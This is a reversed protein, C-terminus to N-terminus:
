GPTSCIFALVLRCAHAALHRDIKEVDAAVKERGGIPDRNFIRAKPQPPKSPGSVAIAVRVVARRYYM